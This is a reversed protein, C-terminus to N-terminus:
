NYVTCSLSQFLFRLEQILSGRQADDAGIVSVYLRGKYITSDVKTSSLEKNIFLTNASLPMIGSKKGPYFLLGAEDMRQLVLEYTLASSYGLNLFMLNGQLNFQALYQDLRHNIFGMSKRANIEIVPVIDGSTLVMSDVCVAGFYGDNYMMRAIEGIVEFYKRRDLQDIFAQDATRSGHYAFNSNIMKQISIIQLDGNEHITLGCSFDIDKDWLPELVFQCLFGKNEQNELHKVIREFVGMSDIRLNGKGSVGYPDKILFPGQELLQNGKERLEFSHSIIDGHYPLNLNRSLNCSYVKSNVKKVTDLEPGRFGLQLEKALRDAATVLSYPFFGSQASLQPRLANMRDLDSVVIEFISQERDIDKPPISSGNVMFDFGLNGLYEKFAPHFPFRLALIDGAECFPFLLEDMSLIIDLSSKDPIEPLKALNEQRWYKESNFEGMILNSPM